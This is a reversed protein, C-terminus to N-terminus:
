ARSAGAGAGHLLSLLDARVTRIHQLLLDCAPQVQRQRALEILGAHEGEARKMAAPSSLQVRTYRDSKQLLAVVISTTQPLQARSYLTTHLQANLAGWVRLDKSQIAASFKSQTTAIADFDEDTLRPISREFLRPELLERLDFVDNIEDPSLTTVIAGKHAVIQVLGEAELQFLAERVPIRSVGYAAALADQRLQAGSAQTGDLIEQRLREAIASSLTRHKIETAM